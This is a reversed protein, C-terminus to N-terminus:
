AEAHSSGCLVSLLIVKKIFLILVEKTGRVRVRERM